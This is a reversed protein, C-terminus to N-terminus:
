DKEGDERGEGEGGGDIVSGESFTGGVVEGFAVVVPAL